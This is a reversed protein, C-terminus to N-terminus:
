ELAVHHQPVPLLPAEICLHLERGNFLIRLDPFPSSLVLTLFPVHYSEDTGHHQTQAAIEQVRLSSTSAILLTGKTRGPVQEKEGKAM